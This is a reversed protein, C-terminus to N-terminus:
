IRIPNSSPRGGRLGDDLPRGDSQGPHRRAGGPDAADRYRRRRLHHPHPTGPGALAAVVEVLHVPHGPGRARGPDVDRRRGPVCSSVTNVPCALRRGSPLTVSRFPGYMAAARGSAASGDVGAGPHGSGASLPDPGSRAPPQRVVPRARRDPRPSTPRVRRAPRRDRRRRQVRVGGCGGHAVVVGRRPRRRSPRQEAPLEAVALKLDCVRDAGLGSAAAFRGTEERITGLTVLDYPLRRVPGVPESLAEFPYGGVVYGTSAVGKAWDWLLPHCRSIAGVVSADQGAADFPCMLSWAPASAFARNLLWEQYRLENVHEAARGSWVSENIRVGPPRARGPRDLGALVRHLPRSQAPRRGPRRLCGLRGASVARAARPPGSRGRRGRHRGRSQRARHLRTDRVPLARSRRLLSAHAHCRGRFRARSHDRACWSGPPATARAWGVRIRCHVSRPARRRSLQHRQYPALHNRQQFPQRCTDIYEHDHGVVSYRGRTPFACVARAVLDGRSARPQGQRPDTSRGGHPLGTAAPAPEASKQRKGAAVVSKGWPCSYLERNSATRLKSTTLFCSRM